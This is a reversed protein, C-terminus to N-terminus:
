PAQRKVRVIPKLRRRCFGVWEIITFIGACALAPLVALAALMYLGPVFYHAAPLRPNLGIGTVRVPVGGRTGLDIRLAAARGAPLFYLYSGDDQPVGIVRQRPSFALGERTYFLEMEGPQGNTEFGMRVVRVDADLYAFVLQPDANQTVFWGDGANDTNHPVADAPNLAAEARLGDGIYDALALGLWLALAALYCWLPLRQYLVALITKLRQRM